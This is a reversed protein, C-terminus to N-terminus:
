HSSRSREFRWWLAAAQVRAMPDPEEFFRLVANQDHPHPPLSALLGMLVLAWDASLEHLDGHIQDRAAQPDVDVLAGLLALRDVLAADTGRGAPSPRAALDKEIRSLTGKPDLRARPRYTTMNWTSLLWKRAAENGLLALAVREQEVYWASRAESTGEAVVIGHQATYALATASVLDDPDGVWRALEDRATRDGLQVRTAAAVVYSVRDFTNPADSESHEHTAPHSARRLPEIASRLSRRGAELAAASRVEGIEDDLARLLEADSLGCTVLARTMADPAAAAAEVFRHVSARSPTCAGSPACHLELEPLPPGRTSVSRDEILDMGCVPCVGDEPQRVHPHMSCTFSAAPGLGSPKADDTPSEIKGDKAAAHEDIPQQSSVPMSPSAEAPSVSRSSCGLALVLGLVSSGAARVDM